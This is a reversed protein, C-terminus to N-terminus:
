FVLINQIRLLFIEFLSSYIVIQLFLFRINEKQSMKDLKCALVCNFTSQRACSSSLRFVYSIYLFVEYSKACWYLYIMCLFLRLRILRVFIVKIYTGVTTSGSIVTTYVTVSSFRQCSSLAAPQNRAFHNEEFVIAKM